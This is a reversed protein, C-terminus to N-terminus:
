LLALQGAAPPLAPRGAEAAKDLGPRIETKRGEIYGAYRATKSGDDDACNREGSNPHNDKLWQKRQLARQDLRVLGEGCVTRRREEDLKHCLGVYIGYMFSQRNRIRRNPRRNWCRRFHGSLFEFIYIAIQQDAAQGIFVIKFDRWNRGKSPCDMILAEVNFFHQCVLASYKVECQLRAATYADMETIPQADPADPDVSALDIGHKRALEAAMALANEIEGKSGGRKMRLLKKIKEIINDQSM